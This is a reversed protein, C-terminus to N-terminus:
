SRASAVLEDLAQRLLDPLREYGPVAVPCATVGVELRNRHSLVTINLPVGDIIPGLPHISAVEMGRMFTTFPPGPVNSVIVNCPLPPWGRGLARGLVGGARAGLSPAITGLLDSVLSVAPLRANEGKAQQSSASIAALRDRLDDVDTALPVLMMSVRNGRGGDGEAARLSVPVAAVLPERPLDDPGLYARLAGACVALVVDNLTGGLEKRVETLEDLPLSTMAVARRPGVRGSMTTRPAAAAFARLSGTASPVDDESPRRANALETTVRDVVRTQSRLLATLSATAAASTVNTATTIPDPAPEPRAPPAEPTLDVLEALLELGAVGDLLAHHIKAIVAIRPERAAEVVYIEWLPRDRPLQHRLLDAAVASISESTLEALRPAALVHNALDFAPDDVWVPPLMGGLPYLLRQTLLPIRDLREALLDRVRDIAPGQPDVPPELVAVMGVHLPTTPSELYLFAADLGGLPHM